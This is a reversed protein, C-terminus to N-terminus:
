KYRAYQMSLDLLGINIMFFVYFICSLSFSVDELVSASMSPASSTVASLFLDPVRLLSFDIEICRLIKLRINSLMFLIIIPTTIPTTIAANDASKPNLYFLSLSM